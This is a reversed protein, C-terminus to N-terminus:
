RREHSAGASPADEGFFDELVSLVINQLEGCTCVLREPEDDPSISDPLDGVAKVIRTAIEQAKNINM